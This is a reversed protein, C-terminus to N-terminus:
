VPVRSAPQPTRGGQRLRGNKDNRLVMSGHANATRVVECVPLSQLGELLPRFNGIDEAIPNEVFFIGTKGLRLRELRPEAWM